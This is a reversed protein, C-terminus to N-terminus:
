KKMFKRGVMLAAGGVLFLTSSIPEPGQQVVALAPSVAIFTFGALLGMIILIKNM